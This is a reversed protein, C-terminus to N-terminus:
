SFPWRRATLLTALRKKGDAKLILENDAIARLGLLPLRPFDGTSYVAIGRPAVIRYPPGDALRQQQGHRNPHVWVHAGLLDLRQGQERIAGLIPLIEPRFNAWDVLHRQRTSFTHTHGTDLIAPFPVAAPNPEMIRHLGLSVWIIIQNARVQVREGRVVVEGAFETFPM